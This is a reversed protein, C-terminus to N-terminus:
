LELHRASTSIEKEAAAFQSPRRTATVSLSAISSGTISLRPPPHRHTSTSYASSNRQSYSPPLPPPLRCVVSAASVSVNSTGHISGVDTCAPKSSPPRALPNEQYFHDDHLAIFTSGEYKALRQEMQEMRDQMKTAAAAAVEREIRMMHALQVSPLAELEIDSIEACARRAEERELRLMTQRLLNVKTIAEHISLLLALMTSCLGLVFVTQTSVSVNSVHSNVTLVFIFQIIVTATAQVAKIYTCLRNLFFDPFGGAAFAFETHKWPLFRYFSTELLALISIISYPAMHQLYHSEELMNLYHASRQTHGSLTYQIYCAPVVHATRFLVVLVSCATYLPVDRNATLVTILLLETALAIGTTIFGLIFAVAPIQVLKADKQRLRFLYAVFLSFAGAVALLGLV